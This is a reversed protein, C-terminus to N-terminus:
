EAEVVRKVFDIRTAYSRFDEAALRKFPNSSQNSARVIGIIVAKGNKFAFIASGSDGPRIILDITFDSMGFWPIEKETVGKITNSVIYGYRVEFGWTWTGDKARSRVIAAVADGIKLRDGIRGRESYRTNCLNYDTPEFINDANFELIAIDNNIDLHYIMAPAGSDKLGGLNPDASIFILRSIVEIPRARYYNWQKEALTVSTPHVVHAATIVYRNSVVCGMGQLLFSGNKKRWRRNNVNHADKSTIPVLGTAIGITTVKVYTFGPENGMNISGHKKDFSWGYGFSILMVTLFTFLTVFKRIM